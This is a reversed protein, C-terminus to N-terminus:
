VAFEMEPMTFLPTVTQEHLHQLLQRELPRQGVYRVVLENWLADRVHYALRKEYPIDNLLNLAVDMLNFSIPHGDHSVGVYDLNHWFYLAPEFRYLIKEAKRYSLDEPQIHPEFVEPHLVRTTTGYYRHIIRWQIPQGAIHVDDLATGTTVRHVKRGFDPLVQHFKLYTAQMRIDNIYHFTMMLTALTLGRNGRSPLPTLFIAGAEPSYFTNTHHAHAVEQVVASWKLEDLYVIQIDRQEFDRPTLRTCADTFHRQWVESETYRAMTLLLPASERKIMSELSRYHLTQMLRKPPTAKLMKKIVSSKIVWAQRHTHLKNALAAVASLVQEVNTRDRIGLRKALFTDHLDALGLLGQYLEKATTDRPDLGLERMKLHLQGYIEGTLRVDVGPFGSAKEFRRVVEGVINEDAGVLEAILKCM